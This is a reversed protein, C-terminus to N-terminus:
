PAPPVYIPRSELAALRSYIDSLVSSMTQMGTTLRDWSPIVISGGSPSLRVNGGAAITIDTSTGITNISLYGPSGPQLFIQAVNSGNQWELGPTGTVSPKIKFTNGSANIAMLLNDVSSLEIRQGSEATRILAGTITGGNISSATINGSFWASGTAADQWLTKVGSTNFLALGYKGPEYQGLRVLERNAADSVRMGLGDVLTISDDYKIGKLVANTSTYKIAKKVGTVAQHIYDEKSLERFNALSVSGRKPEFPYHTWEVVRAQFEYNLEDDKVTMVDGIGRIKYVDFEPDVKTMDVFDVSYTVSPAEYKALHKQMEALLQAKDEIEAFTVSAEFPNDPDYLSSTIYKESHGPLGEITLGNKGYGYLRTVREMNHSKRQIGKMNHRYIVRAGYNGGIQPSLTITYNNFSVEAGYLEALQDLLNRKRDEGWNFVDKAAFTGAIAFDYPTDASLLALMNALPVAAQFDIFHDLYYQNLSTAVHHAEVAKYIRRGQRIEAVSRIKYQQGGHEAPFAIINDETIAAYREEDDEMRPYVFSIYNEDFSEYARVESAYALIHRMAEVYLSLQSQFKSM